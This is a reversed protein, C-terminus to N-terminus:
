QRFSVHRASTASERLAILVVITMAVVSKSPARRAVFDIALKAGAVLRHPPM